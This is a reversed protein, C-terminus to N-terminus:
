LPILHIEETKNPNNDEDILWMEKEKLKLIDFTSTDTTNTLDDTLIWGLIDKDDSFLWEGTFNTTISLLGFKQVQVATAEGDKTLEVWTGEAAYFQASDVGGILWKDIKWKNAVRGKKSRITLAPGEPYKKCSFLGMLILTIMAFSVTKNM